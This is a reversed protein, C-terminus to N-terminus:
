WAGLMGGLNSIHGDPGVVVIVTSYGARLLNHAMDKPPGELRVRWGGEAPGSDEREAVPPERSFDLFPYQQGAHSRAIQVADAEKLLPKELVSGVTRPSPGACGCLVAVSGWCVLCGLLFVPARM